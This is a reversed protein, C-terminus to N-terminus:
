KYDLMEITEKALNDSIDIFGEESEGVLNALIWMSIDKKNILM